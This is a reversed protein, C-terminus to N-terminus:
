KGAADMRVAICTFDDEFRSHGSFAAVEARITDILQAAPLHHNTRVTEALREIGLMEGAASQTETVGDTHFLLVDGPKVSATVAVYEPEKVMGLAMQDGKLLTCDDAEAHFHIVPCHGLDVLHLKGAALDLRAFDLTCFMGLELLDEICEAQVASVVEALQASDHSLYPCSTRPTVHGNFVALAKAFQHKVGAAVLASQVGKGMVDGILIDAQQPSYVFYDAFDGNLHGSPIVLAAIDAGCLNRPPSSQLLRREIEAMTEERGDILLHYEVTDRLIRKLVGPDLPKSMFRYVEGTNIAAITHEMDRTASLILRIVAPYDSKVRRLLALGDMEPMRLDSVIIDIPQTALIDLAERGSGALRTQYPERRLIRHLSRLM